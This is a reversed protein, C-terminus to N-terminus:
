QRNLHTRNYQDRFRAPSIGEHYKFFHTLQGESGFDLQAALEKVSLSTTLLLNKLRNMRAESIIEKLSKGFSQRALTCLYDPHYNFQEAVARVTLRHLSNIRIWEAVEHALRSAVSSSRAQSASIEALLSAMAAESAYTPYDPANGVHLLCRFASALRDPQDPTHKGPTLRLSELSDAYFHAWFFSTHGSSVATGHHNIGPRLLIMDGAILHYDTNDECLFIEGQTVLIVVYTDIVRSPHIWADDTVSRGSFSYSMAPSAFINM